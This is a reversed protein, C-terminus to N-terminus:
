RDGQKEISVSYGDERKKKNRKTVIQKEITVSYKDGQTEKTKEICLM